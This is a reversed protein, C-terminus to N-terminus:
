ILNYSGLTEVHKYKKGWRKDENSRARDPWREGWRGAGGGM